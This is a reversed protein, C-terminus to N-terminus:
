GRWAWSCRSEASSRTRSTCARVASRRRAHRSARGAPLHRPHADRLLDPVHLPQGGDRYGVTATVCLSFFGFFRSRNPSGELYGVAYITTVLWLGSSLAIFFLSFTDIVFVISLGPIWEFAMRLTEGDVTLPILAIVLGVKAVAGALNLTTRVRTATEPLAFIVMAPLFSTALLVLPLLSPTALPADTM